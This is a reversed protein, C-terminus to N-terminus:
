QTNLPASRATPSGARPRGHATGEEDIAETLPLHTDLLKTPTFDTLGLSEPSAGEFAGRPVLEVLEGRRVTQVQHLPRQEEPHGGPALQLPPRARPCSM